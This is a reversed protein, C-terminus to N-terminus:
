LDIMKKATHDCTVIYHLALQLKFDEKLICQVTIGINTKIRGPVSNFSNPLILKKYPSVQKNLLCYSKHVAVFLAFFILYYTFIYASGAQTQPHPKM